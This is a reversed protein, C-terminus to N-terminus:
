MKRLLYLGINGGTVIKKREIALSQSEILKCLGNKAM